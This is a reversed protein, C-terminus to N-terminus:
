ADSRVVACVGICQPGDAVRWGGPRTNRGGADLHSHAVAEVSVTGQVGGSAAVAFPPAVSVVACRRTHKGAVSSEAMGGYQCVTPCRGVMFLGPSVTRAVGLGASGM